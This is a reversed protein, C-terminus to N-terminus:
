TDRRTRRSSRSAPSARQPRPAPLCSSFGISWFRSPRREFRGLDFYTRGPEVDAVVEGEEGHRFNSLGHRAGLTALVAAFRDLLEPSAPNLMGELTASM